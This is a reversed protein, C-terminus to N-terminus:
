PPMIGELMVLALQSCNIEGIYMWLPLGELANLIYSYEHRLGILAGELGSIDVLGLYDGEIRCDQIFGKKVNLSVDVQGGQFRKCNRYNYDPSQGRGWDWSVYKSERLENVRKLDVEGLKHFAMGGFAMGGFANRLSEWFEPMGMEWGMCERINAVRAKVSPIGKSAIKSSDVRLVGQLKDLDSDFLITGHHLLRGNHFRQATGSVKRGHVEIDNRGHQIAPVGLRNLADIMPKMLVGKDIMDPKDVSQIFSYNLNGLDHYVAGGGTSRRIVTASIEKAFAVNVEREASQNRGIIVANDNQWLMMISEHIAMEELCYEEFALNWAPDLSNTEMYLM